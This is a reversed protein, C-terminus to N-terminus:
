EEDNSSGYDVVKVGKYYGHGTIFHRRHSEGTTQDSSLVTAALKKHGGRRMASKSRSKKSKQVAMIVSWFKLLISPLGGPFGWKCGLDVRHRYGYKVLM